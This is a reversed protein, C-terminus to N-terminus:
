RKAIWSNKFVKKILKSKELKGSLFHLFYILLIPLTALLWMLWGARKNKESLSFVVFIGIFFQVAVIIVVVDEIM